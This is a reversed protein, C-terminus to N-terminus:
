KLCKFITTHNPCRLETGNPIVQTYCGTPVFVFATDCGRVPAIHKKVVQHCGIILAVVVLFIIPLRRKM